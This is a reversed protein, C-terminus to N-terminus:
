RWQFRRSLFPKRRVARVQKTKVLIGLIVDLADLGMVDLADARPTGAQGGIFRACLAATKYALFEDTGEALIQSNEDVLAALHAWYKLQITRNQTSPLINIADGQWAWYRIETQANAENPLTEVFSMDVFRDVSETEGKERLSLPVFFGTPTTVTTAGALVAINASLRLQFPIEHVILESELKKLALKLYPTQVAYTYLTKASDNLLSAASDMVSSALFM